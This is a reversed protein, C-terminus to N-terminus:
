ARLPRPLWEPVDITQDDAADFRGTVAEELGELGPKFYVPADVTVAIMPNNSETLALLPIGRWREDARLARVLARGDPADVDVVILGPPEADLVKMAESGDAACRFGYGHEIAIEALFDRAVPDRTYGLIAIVMPSSRPGSENRGSGQSPAPTVVAGSAQRGSRTRAVAVPIPDPTQDKVIARSHNNVM